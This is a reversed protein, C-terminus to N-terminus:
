PLQRMRAITESTSSRRRQDLWANLDGVAYFRRGGVSVFTPGEGTIRSKDLWSKSVGLAEAAAATDLLRPVDSKTM